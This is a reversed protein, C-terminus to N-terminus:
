RRRRRSDRGADRKGEGREGREAGGRGIPAAGRAKGGRGGGGRAGRGGDGDREFVRSEGLTTKGEAVRAKWLKVEKDAGSTVLTTPDVFDLSFVPQKGHFVVFITQVLM